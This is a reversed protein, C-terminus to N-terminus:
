KAHLEAAARVDGRAHHHDARRALEPLLQRHHVAGGPRTRLRQLVESGLRRISVGDDQHRLRVQQGHQPVAVQRLQRVQDRQRAGRVIRLHHQHAAVAREARRLIHEGGAARTRQAKAARMNAAHVM